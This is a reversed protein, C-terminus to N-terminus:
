SRVAQLIVVAGSDWNEVYIIKYRQGGTEAYNGETLNDNCDCYMRKQCEVELGYDKAALGGNYPQIDAKFSCLETVAQPTKTYAGSEKISIIKVDKNYFRKFPNSMVPFVGRETASRTLGAIIIRYFIM